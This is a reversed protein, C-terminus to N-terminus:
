IEPWQKATWSEAVTIVGVARMSNKEPATPLQKWHFPESFGSYAIPEAGFQQCVYNM